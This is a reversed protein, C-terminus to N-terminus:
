PFRTILLLAITIDLRALCYARISRLAQALHSKVTEPSLNLRTAIEERKCGQERALQYVQRQQPPLRQIASALVATYEKQLLRNESDDYFAPAGQSANTEVERRLAIRKLATFVFNRTSTFLYASFHTVDSLASRKLWIKLFVDQVIEEAIASSGTLEYSISYIKDRYNNFLRTFADKDGQVVAQLLDKETYLPDVPM